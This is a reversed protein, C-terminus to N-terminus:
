ADGLCGALHKPTDAVGSALPFLDAQLAHYIDPKGAFQREIPLGADDIEPIWGGRDTDIFHAAAFTWIRRYWDEDRPQPDLKILTALAGIAETMPWWYRDPIDVAGGHSLTYVFGGDPRWADQLATEILRRATGPATTDPRGSLAWHQILLRGLEFSHGPTTGAPRFMPNGAYGFDVRWDDTYHEPLRWAHAPAMVETLFALIRGARTLWTRDGTAEFAALMAETTHMNANMGRYTSFTTWDRRFEERMLGATEDWFRADIVGAVDDFLNRAREHGAIMATSAALLVFAHGYALKQDDTIAGDRVAWVYGGHVTDRHQNWLADLGADVLRAAGPYGAIQGLAYSHVFRTVTHLEQPVPRPTGSRDLAAIAGNQDLSAAFFDLQARADAALFRRHSPDDIWHGPADAPGPRNRLDTM